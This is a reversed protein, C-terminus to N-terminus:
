SRSGPLIVVLVTRLIIKIDLWFSRHAVYYLDFRLKDRWHTHYGGRVQALGTIGPPVQHRRAYIPNKAEFQDVFCPREPRPGVMSMEGRLVNWLQPLEDIRFAKLWRGARTLRTDGAGHALIPGTSAEADNVMTRFKYLTFTKGNRGVRDQAFLAPGPSTFKILATIVLGLPALIILGLSAVLIDLMRKFTDHASKSASNLRVIAIDGFNDVERTSLLSEYTTPVISVRVDSDTRALDEALVQQWTPAYAVFVETVGYDRVIQATAERNGLLPLAFDPDDLGDDVFGVVHYGASDLSRSLERGVMGAGVILARAPRVTERTIPEHVERSYDRSVIGRESVVVALLLGAIVGTAGLLPRITDFPAILGLLGLVIAFGIQIGIVSMFM